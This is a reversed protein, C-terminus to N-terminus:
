ALGHGDGSAVGGEALENTGDNANKRVNYALLCENVAAM